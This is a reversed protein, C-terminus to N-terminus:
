FFCIRRLFWVANELSSPCVKSGKGSWIPRFVMVKFAACVRISVLVSYDGM